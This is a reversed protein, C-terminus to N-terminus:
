TGSKNAKVDRVVGNVPCKRTPLRGVPQEAFAKIQQASVRIQPFYRVIYHVVGLGVNGTVIFVNFYCRSQNPQVGIFRKARPLAELLQISKREVPQSRQRPYQSLIVHLKKLSLNALMVIRIM